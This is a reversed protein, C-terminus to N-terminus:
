IGMSYGRHLLSVIKGSLWAMPFAFVFNIVGEIFMVLYWNGLSVASFVISVLFLIIYKILTSLFSVVPLTFVMEFIFITRFFEVMLAVTSFVITHTGITSGSLIDVFVGLIAGFVIGQSTGVKFSYYIVLILLLDPFFGFVKLQPISQLISIFLIILIAWLRRM